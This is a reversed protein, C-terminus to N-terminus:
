EENHICSRETREDGGKGEVMVKISIITLQQKGKM